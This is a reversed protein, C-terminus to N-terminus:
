ALSLQLFLYINFCLVLLLMEHPQPSKLLALNQHSFFLCAKGSCIVFSM